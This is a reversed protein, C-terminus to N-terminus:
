PILIYYRDNRKFFYQYNGNENLRGFDKKKVETVKSVYFENDVYHETEFSEKTSWTLYNRFKIPSNAYPVKVTRVKIEKGEGSAPLLVEEDAKSTAYFGEPLILFDSRSYYSKPPIFTIREEHSVVQSSISGGFVAPLNSPQVRSSFITVGVVTTKGDWYNLKTDNSVFSCKKWDVYIPKDIKNYISFALVGKEEWFSYIIAISDNQYVYSYNYEPRLRIDKNKTAVEMVQYTYTSCGFTLFVLLAIFISFKM